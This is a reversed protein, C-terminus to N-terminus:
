ITEERIDHQEWSKWKLAVDVGFGRNEYVAEREIKGNERWRWSKVNENRRRNNREGNERKWALREPWTEIIANSLKENKLKIAIEGKPAEIAEKPNWVYNM